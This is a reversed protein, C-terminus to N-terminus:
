PRQWHKSGHDELDDRTVSTIVAHSLNMNKVSEAVNHPEEPDPMGPKKPIIACFRCNRTCTDGLIMFTATGCNWCESINPCHAEECVTHLSKSRMM